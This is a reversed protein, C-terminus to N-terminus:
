KSPPRDIATIYHRYSDIDNDRRFGRQEDAPARDYNELVMRAYFQMEPNYEKRRGKDPIELVIHRIVDSLLGAAVMRETVDNEGLESILHKLFIRAEQLKGSRILSNAEVLRTLTETPM